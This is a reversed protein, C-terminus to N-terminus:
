VKLGRNKNVVRLPRLARFSRFIKLTSLSNGRMQAELTDSLVSLTVIIGDIVNWPDRPYAGPHFVLGQAIIKLVM